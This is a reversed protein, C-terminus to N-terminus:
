SQTESTVAPGSAKLDFKSFIGEVSGAAGALSAAAAFLEILTLRLVKRVARAAIGRPGTNAMPVPSIGVKELFESCVYSASREVYSSAPTAIAIEQFGLSTMVYRLSRPSFHSLHRPLELGYWCTGLLRAEWSDINPLTTYFIGDPKLWERVKSLFDRPNYVHELVDFCTIADFSDTAFPADMADGIFVEAGTALRLREATSQEMEIGYLKWSNAKMTGLFGGSSRGIDLLAGSKKYQSIRERQMRWRGEASKEGATVIARHYDEDYHVPMEEPKPPGDLWVYTCSSCRLLEYEQHRWHFRDPASMFRSIVSAGCLPCRAIDRRM